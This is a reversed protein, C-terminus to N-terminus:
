LYRVSGKVAIWGSFTSAAGAWDASGTPTLYGMRAPELALAFGLGHGQHPVWAPRPMDDQLFHNSLIYDVTHPSLIRIGDLEGGNLLMQLFRQYDSTSSILGAGGSLLRGSKRYRSTRPDDILNLRGDKWTYNSAFRSLKDEPLTFGTDRMKLPDFFREQLFEDFDQGSMIEILHGLVDISISYSMREGPQHLLPIGSLIRIMESLNGVAVADANSAHLTEVGPLIGKKRYLKHVPTKGTFHYTLGSTHVFLDRFTIPRKLEETVMASGNGSVYVRLKRFEPLYRHVPDDLQFHGEEFLIMAAVSSIAKSMSYIRFLTDEKIPIKRDIDQWGTSIRHVTKGHRKISVYFGPYRGSQVLNEFNNDLRNLRNKSFGHVLDDAHAQYLLVAGLFCILTQRIFM